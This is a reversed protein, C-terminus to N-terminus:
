LKVDSQIVDLAAREITAKQQAAVISKQLMPTKAVADNALTFL